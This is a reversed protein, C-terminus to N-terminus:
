AVRACHDSASGVRTPPGVHRFHWRTSAVQSPRPKVHPLPGVDDKQYGASPISLNVRMSEHPQHHLNGVLPSQIFNLTSTSKSTSSCFPRLGTVKSAPPNWVSESQITKRLSLRSSDAVGMAAKGFSRTTLTVLSSPYGRRDDGSFAILAQSKVDGTSCL